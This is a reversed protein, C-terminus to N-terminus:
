QNPFAQKQRSVADHLGSCLEKGAEHNVPPSRRFQFEAGDLRNDTIYAIELQDIPNMKSRGSDSMLVPGTEFQFSSRKPPFDMTRIAYVLVFRLKLGPECTHLLRHLFSEALRPNHNLESHIALRNRTVIFAGTSRLRVLSRCCSEMSRNSASLNEVTYRASASMKSRCCGSSCM